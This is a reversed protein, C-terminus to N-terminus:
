ELIYINIFYHKPARLIFYRLSVMVSNFVKDYFSPFIKSHDLCDIDYICNDQQVSHM